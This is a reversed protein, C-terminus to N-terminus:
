WNRSLLERLREIISAYLHYPNIPDRELEITSRSDHKCIVCRIEMAWVMELGLKMAMLEARINTTTGLCILFGKIRGCEADHLVVGHRARGPNVLSSGDVSLKLDELLPKEWCIM